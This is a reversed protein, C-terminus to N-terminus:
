RFLRAELDIFKEVYEKFIFEIVFKHLYNKECGMVEVILGAREPM